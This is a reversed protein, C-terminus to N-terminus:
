YRSIFEVLNDNRDLQLKKRLRYRSTHVSEISIGLLSAMDKSSFNLKVLACIKLDTQTLSSFDTKINKYFNPNIDIFRIEFEKWNNGVDSKISKIIKNLSNQNPNEKQDNLTSKLGLIFEDKEILQLASATLERNKLEIVEKSEILKLRQKKKLQAKEKIHKQKLKKFVIISMILIFLTTIFLLISRLFSIKEKQELELLKQEKFLQEQKEKQIRYKDKIEFLYKNNDSNIGFIKNELDIAQRIHFFANQYEKSDYYLQSLEKHNIIQYNKHSNYIGSLELSRNYHFKSKEVENKKHYLKALFFHIIVLYSENNEKFHDYSKVLIMEASDFKGDAALLFGKESELFYNKVGKSTPTFYSYCSDLYIRANELDNNDRYFAVISYYDSIVNNIKSRNQTSLKKSLELAKSFNELAETNRNYFSYLWGLSQYVRSKSFEDNSKEALLLAEWYGDYAKSYNLNHGYVDSLENISNILNFTDRKHTFYEISKKYNKISIESNLFKNKRAKKLYQNTKYHQQSFTFNGSFPIVTIIIWLLLSLTKIM